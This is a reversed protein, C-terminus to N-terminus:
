IAKKIETRLDKKELGLSASDDNEGWGCAGKSSFMSGLVAGLINPFNWEGRRLGAEADEEMKDADTETIEFKSGTEEELIALIEKQSIYFDSILLNKNKFKEPTSFVSVVSAGITEVNSTNWRLTGGNYLTAKKNPIDFGLLHHPVILGWNFFPGTNITTYEIVGAASKGTLYEDIKHHPSYITQSQGPQTHTDVGFEGPIIRKVGADISADILAKTTAEVERLGITIVVAENGKLTEVLEQHNTFDVKIVKVSPNSSTFKSEKRSLVTIEFKGSDVLAKHVPTGVNGSPGIHVIKHYSM